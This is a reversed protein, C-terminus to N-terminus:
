CLDGKLHNIGINELSYNINAYIFSKFSISQQLIFNLFTHSGVSFAM